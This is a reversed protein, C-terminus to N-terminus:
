FNALNNVQTLQKGPNQSDRLLKRNIIENRLEPFEQQIKRMADDRYLSIMNVIEKYFFENRKSLKEGNRLRVKFDEVAKDFDPHTVWKKLDRYLGSNGM